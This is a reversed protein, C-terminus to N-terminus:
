LFKKVIPIRRLCFTIFGCYVFVAVQLSIIGAFSSFCFIRQIISFKYLKIIYLCHLLYIGFTCLSVETICKMQYRKFERHCFYYRFLYFVSMAPLITTIKFSSDLAYSIEQNSLFPLYLSLIFVIISIIFSILAINRNRKNLEVMSLYYGTVCYILPYPIIAMSFYESIKLHFLSQIASITGPILLALTILARYDNVLFEKIMKKVFPLMFYLGILMYLYWYALKMPNELITFIFNSDLNNQEIYLYLSVLLLPVVIRFVRKKIYSYDWEKQLLLYGSTMLFLPVGIKCIAFSISYFLVSINNYGGYVLLWSGSHNVVVLFCALIKLLDLWLIHHKEHIGERKTDVNIQMLIM